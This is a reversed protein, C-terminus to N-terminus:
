GGNSGCGDASGPEVLQRVECEVDWDDGHVKLFRKTLEIADAKSEAQLIAYGGVVEKAETFPGDKVSLKGGSLRVRAGASSPLLGATDLLVGAQTMEEILKGMDIMLQESPQKGASENIRVMSLFRM